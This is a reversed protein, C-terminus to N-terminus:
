KAEDLRSLQNKLSSLLSRVEANPGEHDRDIRRLLREVNRLESELDSIEKSILAEAFLGTYSWFLATGIIMMFIGVVKGQPTVPTIDGYGVTTVTAVAWWVTDLLSRINPNTGYEIRYLLTAGVIIVTNGFLTLAVFIPQSVLRWLRKFFVRIGSLSFFADVRKQLRGDRM